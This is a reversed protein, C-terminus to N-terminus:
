TLINISRIAFERTFSHILITNYIGQTTVILYLKITKIKSLLWEIQNFYDNNASNKLM